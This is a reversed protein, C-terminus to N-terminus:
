STEWPLDHAPEGSPQTEKKGARKIGDKPEKKIEPKDIPIPSIRLTDWNMGSTFKMAKDGRIKTTEMSIASEENHPELTMAIDAADLIGKAFRAEGTADIQYPSIIVIDYKRALEKLKKSVDIQPQWDFQSKAGEIVIQNLYDIVAVGFKEGFKAKMKGLHLDISSLSLKRDDVIVMQNDLKLACYKNISDEFKYQDRDQMFESVYKDANTFMDARTRVVKLIDTDSLENKKLARHDVNALISINRQLVEQAIMEITFYVSSYGAEYQGVVLNSCIISKGSGRKGGILILEQRAVGNLVSDFTNNLGLHMRSRTLEEPRQFVSVESMTFVNEASLTKEDLTLVISALNEKIEASDYVPLKDVYKELLSITLTQTYQDILADLAVEASVDTEDLLRLTALTKAVPLERVVVELEDFSPISSYNTYYRSIQTYLSSYSPDLFALKLKSWVDLNKETLLKNILVASIDM